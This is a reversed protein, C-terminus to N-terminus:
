KKTVYYRPAILLLEDDAKELMCIPQYISIKNTLCSSSNEEATESRHNTSNNLRFHQSDMVLVNKASSLLRCSSCHIGWQYFSSFVEVEIEPRNDKNNDCKWMALDSSSSRICQKLMEALKTLKKARTQRHHQGCYDFADSFKQIHPREPPSSFTFIDSLSSQDIENHDPPCSFPKKSLSDEDFEIILSQPFPSSSIALESSLGDPNKKTLCDKPAPINITSCPSSLYDVSDSEESFNIEPSLQSNYFIPHKKINELSACNDFKLKIRKSDNEPTDPVFNIWNQTAKNPEPSRCYEILTEDFQTPSNRNESELDPTVSVESSRTLVRQSTMPIQHFSSRVPMFKPIFGDVVESASRVFFSNESFKKDKSEAM